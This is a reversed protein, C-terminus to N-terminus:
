GGPLTLVLRARNQDSCKLLKQVMGCRSCTNLVDSEKDVTSKCGLCAVSCDLALIGAVESDHVKDELSPVDDEAVTGIDEVEHAEAGDKPFQLFKEGQFSNVVVNALHYSKGKSLRGIDNEWVAIKIATNPDAIIVNQVKLGDSVVAAKDVRVVKAYLSM